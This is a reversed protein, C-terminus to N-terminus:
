LVFIDDEGHKDKAKRGPFHMAGFLTVTQKDIHKKLAKNGDRIKSSHKGM